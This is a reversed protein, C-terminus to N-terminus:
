KRIFAGAKEYLLQCEEPVLDEINIFAHIMDEFHHHCVDAGAQALAEAYALGEDRLPDFEATFILTEPLDATILGHLPSYHKRNEGQQFYHDFYWAIKERELLYGRGNSSISPMAMTYDVCPYILIQKDIRVRKEVQNQMALVTCISGGASDGAIILETTYAVETLIEQFHSLVSWCAYIGEPFPHEPALPYEVSIVISHGALALKRCMADYLEVSGCMHGGGHFYIVVPLSEDPAPSYVRVPTEGQESRIIKDRSYGIDPIRTNFQALNNLNTRVLEPTPIINDAKAQAILRNVETLFPQLKQSVQKDM